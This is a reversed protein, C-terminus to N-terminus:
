ADTFRRQIDAIRVSAPAMAFAIKKIRRLENEAEDASKRALHYAARTEVLLREVEEVRQTTAADSAPRSDM